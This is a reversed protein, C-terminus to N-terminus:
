KAMLTLDWMPLFIALAFFGVVAALGVTLLPGIAESLKKMAYEVESDYHSAVEQLMSELSGSEEGIAVMNILMPTFYKAEGLPGAIGRGEALRDKINELENGIAANGITETLIDMSDLVDVGSSQLISFISAFRSVASKVFLPGLLPVKMLLTDRMLKGQRTKLYYYLFLGVLIAAGLVFLWYSSLVEYLFICIQTPLPLQLGANKFISAFKPIVQTILILFASFLFVVVIVPYTLASKIDSKVQNEHEIIYTLRELVEPLAGSTEGARIMSCYLPSFVKPHKRFAEYLSAGEKIDQHMKGLVGRLRPNETQQELIALMNIMSVGANFMTKFQKTFLILEPAKVPSLLERIKSMQFGSLAAQEARVRTPIYGRAALLSNASELSDAEIEGSTTAGTETIAQYQFKPM